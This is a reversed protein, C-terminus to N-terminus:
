IGELENAEEIDYDDYNRRTDIKTLGMEDVFNNMWEYAERLDDFTKAKYIARSVEEYTHADKRPKAGIRRLVMAQIQYWFALVRSRIISLKHQLEIGSGEISHYSELAEIVQERRELVVIKFVDGPPTSVTNASNFDVM